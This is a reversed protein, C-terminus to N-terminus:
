EYPCIGVCWFQSQRVTRQDATRHLSRSSFTGDDRTQCQCHRRRNPTARGSREAGSRAMTSTVEYSDRTYRGDITMRMQGPVTRDTCVMAAQLRGGSMDFRESKCSTTGSNNTFFNADPKKAMEETMCSKFRNTQGINAKLVEAPVGPVDMAVLQSTTEWEGPTFTQAVAAAQAQAKQAGTEAAEQCGALLLGPLMVMRM